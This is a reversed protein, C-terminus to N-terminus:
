EEGIEHILKAAVWDLAATWGESFMRSSHASMGNAIPAQAILVQKLLKKLAKRTKKRSKM